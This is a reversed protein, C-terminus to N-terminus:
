KNQASSLIFAILAFLGMLVTILIAIFANM